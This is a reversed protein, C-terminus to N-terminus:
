SSASSDMHASRLARRESARESAGMTQESCPHARGSSVDRVRAAPHTSGHRTAGHLATDHRPWHEQTAASVARVLWDRMAAAHGTGSEERAKTAPALFAVRQTPRRGKSFSTLGPGPAFARERVDSIYVGRKPFADSSCSALAVTTSSFPVPRLRAMRMMRAPASDQDMVGLSANFSGAHKTPVEEKLWVVRDVEDLCWSGQRNQILRYGQRGRYKYQSAEGAEDRITWRLIEATM